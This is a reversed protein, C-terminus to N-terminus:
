RSKALTFNRPTKARKSKTEVARPGATMLNPTMRLGAPFDGDWMMRAVHRLSRKAGNEAFSSDIHVSKQSGLSVNSAKRDEIRNELQGIAIRGKKARPTERVSSFGAGKVFVTFLAVESFGVRGGFRAWGATTELKEFEKCLGTCSAYSACLV